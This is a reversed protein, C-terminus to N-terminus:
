VNINQRYLRSDDSIKCWRANFTRLCLFPIVPDTRRIM